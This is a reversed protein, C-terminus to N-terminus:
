IEAILSIAAVQVAGILTQLAELVVVAMNVAATTTTLVTKFQQVGLFAAQFVVHAM